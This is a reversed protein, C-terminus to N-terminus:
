QWDELIKDSFKVRAAANDALVIQDGLALNKRIAQCNCIGSRRLVLMGLM